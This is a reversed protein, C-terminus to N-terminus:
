APLPSVLARGRRRRGPAGPSRLRHGDLQGWQFGRPCRDARLPDRRPFARVPAPPSRCVARLLPTRVGHVVGVFPPDWPAAGGPFRPISVPWRGVIWLSWRHRPCLPGRAETVGARPPPWGGLTILGTFAARPLVAVRSRHAVHGRERPPPWARLSGLAGGTVSLCGAQCPLLLFPRGSIWAAWGSSPERRYGSPYGGKRADSSCPSPLVPSAWRGCHGGTRQLSGATGRLTLARGLLWRLPPTIVLQTPTSELAGGRPSPGEVMKAEVYVRRGDVAVRRSSLPERTRLGAAPPDNQIPHDTRPDTKGYLTPWGSEGVLRAALFRPRRAGM